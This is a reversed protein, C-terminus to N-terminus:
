SGGTPCSTGPWSGACGNRRSGTRPRARPSFSRGQEGVMERTFETSVIALGPYARRFVDNGWVHDFHWHTNVLYRVPKDTLKKVDAVMREALSPFQGSDVLLAADEGVVLTCNAQM